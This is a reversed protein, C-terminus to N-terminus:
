IVSMKGTCVTVISRKIRSIIVTVQINMIGPRQVYFPWIQERLLKTCYKCKSETFITVNVHQSRIEQQYWCGFIWLLLLKQLM